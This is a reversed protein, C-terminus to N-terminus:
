GGSAMRLHGLVDQGATFLKLYPGKLSALESIPAELKRLGEFTLLYFRVTEQGPYSIDETPVAQDYYKAAMTVWSQGPVRVSEHAGGGIIGFKSTTYLSVDGLSSAFLSCMNGSVPFDMMCAYVLPFEPTPVLEMEAPSTTLMMRRLGEGESPGSNKPAKKQGFLKGFIGM